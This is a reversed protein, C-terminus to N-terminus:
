SVLLSSVLLGPSWSILLVPSVNTPVKIKSTIFCPSCKETNEFSLNTRYGYIKENTFSHLNLAKCIKWFLHYPEIQGRHWAFSTCMSDRRERKFFQWSLPLTPTLHLSWSDSTGSERFYGHRILLSSTLTSKRPEFINLIIIDAMKIWYFYTYVECCTYATKLIRFM